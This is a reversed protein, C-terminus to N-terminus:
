EADVNRGNEPAEKAIEKATEEMELAKKLVELNGIAKCIPVGIAESLEVPILNIGRLINLTFQVIESKSYSEKEM